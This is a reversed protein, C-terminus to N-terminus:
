VSNDGQNIKELELAIREKKNKCNKYKHLLSRVLKLREIQQDTEIPTGNLTKTVPDIFGAFLNLHKAAIKLLRQTQREGVGLKDGVDKRTIGPLNM